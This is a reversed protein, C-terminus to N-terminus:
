IHKWTKRTIIDTIAGIGVNYERGLKAKYGFKKNKEYKERIELVQEGTLKSKNNDDGRRVKNPSHSIVVRGKAVMDASNEAPTGDWLHLSNVCLQNDCSHCAFNNPFKKNWILYSFRHAQHSKYNLHFRGYHIRKSGKWDWCAFMNEEPIDVKAFFRKIVEDNLLEM